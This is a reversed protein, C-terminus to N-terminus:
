LRLYEQIGRHNKGCCCVIPLLKYVSWLMWWPQFTYYNQGVSDPMLDADSGQYGVKHKQAARRILPENGNTVMERLQTSFEM